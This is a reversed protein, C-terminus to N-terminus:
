EDKKRRPISPVASTPRGGGEGKPGPLAKKPGAGVLADGGGEGVGESADEDEDEELQAKPKKAPDAPLYEFGIKSAEGEGEVKIRV